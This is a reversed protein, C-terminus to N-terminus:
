PITADEKPREEIAFNSVDLSKPDREIFAPLHANETESMGYWPQAAKNLVIKIMEDPENPMRADVDVRGIGAWSPLKIIDKSREIGLTKDWRTAVINNQRSPSTSLLAQGDHGKPKYPGLPLSSRGPDPSVWAKSRTLPTNSSGEAL